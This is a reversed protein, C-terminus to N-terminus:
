GFPMVAYQFAGFPTHFATKERDQVRLRIQHYGSQLDLISFCKADGLTDLLEDIRPIPYSNKITIENLRRYDICMRWKGDKKPAFIIPAGYPSNSVEIWQNRLLDQLQREVEAVEDHSLPRGKSNPTVRRAEPEIEIAHEVSRSMPVELGQPMEGVSKYKELLPQVDFVPKGVTEGSTNKSATISKLVCLYMPTGTLMISAMEAASVLGHARRVEWTDSADVFLEHMEGQEGHVVVSDHWDLSTPTHKQFFPMGLVIDADLDMDTVLLPTSFSFGQIQVETPETVSLQSTLEGNGFKVRAPTGDPMVAQRQHLRLQTAMAPTVSDSYAGSDLLVKVRVGKVSGWFRLSEVPRVEATEVPNVTATTSM